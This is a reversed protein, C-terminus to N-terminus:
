AILASYVYEVGGLGQCLRARPAEVPSENFQRADAVVRALHEGRGLSRLCQGWSRVTLRGHAEYDDCRDHRDDGRGGGTGIGLDFAGNCAVDARDYRGIPGAADRHRQAEFPTGPEEIVAPGIAGVLAQDGAVRQEIERRQALYELRRQQGFRDAVPLEPEVLWNGFIHGLQRLVAVDGADRKAM